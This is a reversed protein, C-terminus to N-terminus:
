AAKRYEATTVSEAAVAPETREALYHRVADFALMGGSVGVLSVLGVFLVSLENTFDVTAHAVGAQAIFSWM